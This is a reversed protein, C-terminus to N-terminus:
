RIMYPFTACTNCFTPTRSLDQTAHLGGGGWGGAAGGAGGVDVRVVGGVGATREPQTRRDATAATPSAVAREGFAERSIAQYDGDLWRRSPAAQWRMGWSQRLAAASPCWGQQLCLLINGASRLTPCGPAANDGRLVTAALAPAAPLPAPPASDQAACSSSRCAPAEELLPLCLRAPANTARQGRGQGRAPAEERGCGAATSATADRLTLM